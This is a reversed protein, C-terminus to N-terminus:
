HQNKRWKLFEEFLQGADANGLSANARQKARLFTKFERALQGDTSLNTSTSVLPSDKQMHVRLWDEAPKFRQWGQLTSALNVEDWKAHRGKRDLIANFKSFFAETFRALRAYRDSNAPWNYIALVANVAVTEVEKGEPILQPYDKHTLNTPVYVTQTLASSYPIAVFRLNPNFELMKDVDSVPKGIFRVLADFEGNKISAAADLVNAGIIKAPKIGLKALLVEVSKEGGGFVAVVKGQLDQITQVEPKSTWVHFEELYLVTIYKLRQGLNAYHPQDRLTEIIDARVLGMDIGRLYLIDRANEGGGGRVPLIRLNDGDGIANAIDDAFRLYAGTLGGGIITVTNANIKEKFVDDGEPQQQAMTDTASAFVALLLFIANYFIRSPSLTRQSCAHKM